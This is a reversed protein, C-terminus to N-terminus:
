CFDSVNFYIIHYFTFDHEDANAEGQEILYKYLSDYSVVACYGNFIYDSLVIKVYPPGIPIRTVDKVVEEYTTAMNMALIFDKPQNFFIDDVQANFDEENKFSGNQSKKLFEQYKSENKHIPNKCIAM